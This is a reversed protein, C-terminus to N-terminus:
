SNDAGCLAQSESPQHGPLNEHLIRYVEQHDQIYSISIAKIADNRGCGEIEMAMSVAEEFEAVTGDDAMIISKKVELHQNHDRNLTEVFQKEPLTKAAEIVAPL